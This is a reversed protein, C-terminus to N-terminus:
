TVSQRGGALLSARAFDQLVDVAVDLRSVIRFVGSRRYVEPKAIDVPAEVTEPFHDIVLGSEDHHRSPQVHVGEPIREAVM